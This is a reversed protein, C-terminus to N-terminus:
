SFSEVSFGWSSAIYSRAQAIHPWRHVASFSRPLWLIRCLIQVPTKLIQIHAFGGAVEHAGRLLQLKADRDTGLDHPFTLVTSESMIYWLLYGPPQCWTSLNESLVLPSAKVALESSWADCRSSMTSILTQHWMGNLSGIFHFLNQLGPLRFPQHSQFYM